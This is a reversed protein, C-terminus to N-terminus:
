LLYFVNLIKLMFIKPINNYIDDTKKTARESPPKATQVRL